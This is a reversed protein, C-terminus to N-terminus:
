DAPETALVVLGSRNTGKEAFNALMREREQDDWYDIVLEVSSDPVIDFSEKGTGCWDWNSQTWKGDVDIEQFLQIHESGAAEYQLTTNGVNKVTVCTRLGVTSIVTIEPVNTLPDADEFFMERWKGDPANVDPWPWFRLAVACLLMAVLLSRISFQLWRPSM